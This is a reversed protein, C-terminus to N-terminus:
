QCRDRPPQQGGRVYRPKENQNQSNRLPPTWPPLGGGPGAGPGAGTSLQQSRLILVSEREIVIAVLAMKSNLLKYTQIVDVIVQGGSVLLANPHSALQLRARIAM